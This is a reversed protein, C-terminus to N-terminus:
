RRIRPPSPCIEVDVGLWSAVPKGNKRGPRYTWQRVCEDASAIVLSDNDFSRTALVTGEKSVLVWMLGVLRMGRSALRDPCHPETRQLVGPREDLEVRDGLAPFDESYRDHWLGSSQLGAPRPELLRISFDEGSDFTHTSLHAWKSGVVLTEPGIPGGGYASDSRLYSLCEAYRVLAEGGPLVGVLVLPKKGDCFTTTGLSDGVAAEIVSTDPKQPGGGWGSWRREVLVLRARPVARSPEACGIVLLTIAGWVLRAGKNLRM